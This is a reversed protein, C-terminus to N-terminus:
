ATQQHEKEEIWAVLDPFRCRLVDWPWVYKVRGTSRAEDTPLHGRARWQRITGLPISFREAVDEVPMSPHHRWKRLGDHRHGHECELMGDVPHLHGSCGYTQCPLAPTHNYKLLRKLRHHLRNIDEIMAPEYGRGRSWELQNTLWACQKPLTSTVLQVTEGALVQEAAVMAYWSGILALGTSTNEPDFLMLRELDALVVSEPTRRPRAGDDSVPQTNWTYWTEAALAPIETLQQATNPM